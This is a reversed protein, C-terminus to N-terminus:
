GPDQTALDSPVDVDRLIGPDNVALTEVRADGSNFLVRAGTDGSASMLRAFYQSGIGVPNGRRGQWTPVVLNDSHLQKQLAAFTSPLVWPMDGLAIVAGEWASAQDLAAALSYGMGKDAHEAIVVSWEKGLNALLSSDGPSLVLLRQSFSAPINDLATQLISSDGLRALRKDSGFRSSRGAALVICGITSSM